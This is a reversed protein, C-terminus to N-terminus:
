LGCCEVSSLVRNVLFFNGVWLEGRQVKLAEFIVFIFGIESRLGLHLYVMIWSWACM